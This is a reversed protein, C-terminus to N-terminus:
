AQKVIISLVEGQCTCEGDALVGVAVRVKRGELSLLRAEIRLPVGMPTPKKYSVNLSATVSRALPDRGLVLGCSRHYFWAAAANGHCDIVAALMGGYAFHPVGGTLRVSPLFSAVVLEDGEVYSKIHWGAESDPGCGYCSRYPAQYCDEIAIRSEEREMKISFLNCGKVREGGGCLPLLKSQSKYEVYHPLPHFCRGACGWRQGIAVRKEYACAAIIEWRCFPVEIALAEVVETGQSGRWDVATTSFFVPSEGRPAEQLVMVNVSRRRPPM